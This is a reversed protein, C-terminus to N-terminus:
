GDVTLEKASSREAAKKAKPRAFSVPRGAATIVV